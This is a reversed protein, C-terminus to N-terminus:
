SGLGLLRCLGFEVINQALTTENFIGDEFEGVVRM